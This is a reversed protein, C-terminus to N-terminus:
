IFLYKSCKNDYLIHRLSFIIYGIIDLRDGLFGVISGQEIVLSVDNLYVIERASRKNEIYTLKNFIIEM